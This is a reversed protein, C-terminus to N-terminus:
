DAASPAKAKSRAARRHTTPRLVFRPEAYGRKFSDTMLTARDVFLPIGGRRPRMLWVHEVLALRGRIYHEAFAKVVRTSRALRHREERKDVDLKAEGPKRRIHAIAHRCDDLLYTGLSRMGLPLEDVDSQQIRLRARDKRWASDVFDVADAGRGVELVQWFFLFRLYNNNAGDAERYLALAIRQDDTQVHPLRHLDCNVVNGSFPIRPPVRITPKAARLPRGDLWGGSGAEWVAVPRHTEWGLASIFECAAAFATDGEPSKSDPVITLLHDAWKRPDDQVLKFTVGRYEFLYSKRALRCGNDFAIEMLDAM